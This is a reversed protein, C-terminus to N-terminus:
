APWRRTAKLQRLLTALEDAGMAALSALQAGTPVVDLLECATLIATRLGRAEGRAEGWAQGRAEGAESAERKASEWGAEDKLRFAEEPSIRKRELTRLARQLAVEPYRSEDVQQDLSDEILELWRRVPVPTDPRIGRANVFVLRHRYVNLARGQLDQLDSNQFAVDFRLSPDKPQRTLVVLTYVTRPFRYNDANQIQEAQGILHYYLFRDFSDDERIHQLEVIIRREVDEAFLDYKIDVHGYVPRFGHEQEVRDTHFEIGLVDHVFASFVVPDGFAKKFATGYQLSVVELM